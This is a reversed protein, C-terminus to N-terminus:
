QLSLSVNNKVEVIKVSQLNFTITSKDEFYNQWIVKLNKNMNDVIYTFKNLYHYTFVIQRGQKILQNKCGIFNVIEFYIYYM